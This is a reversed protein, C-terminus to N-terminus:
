LAFVTTVYSSLYMTPGRVLELSEPIAKALSQGVHLHELAKFRLIYERIKLNELCNDVDWLKLIINRPKQVKWLIGDLDLYVITPATKGAAGVL